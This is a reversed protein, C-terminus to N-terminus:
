SWSTSSCFRCEPLDYIIQQLAPQKLDFSAMVSIFGDPPLTM